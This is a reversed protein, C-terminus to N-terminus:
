SAKSMYPKRKVMDLEVLHKIEALDLLNEFIKIVGLKEADEDTLTSFGTMLVIPPHNSKQTNIKRILHVGNGNPMNVDSVIFDIKEKIFIQFAEEGNSAHFIHVGLDELEYAILERMDDIDDVVLVSYIKPTM